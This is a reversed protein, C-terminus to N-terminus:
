GPRRSTRRARARWRAAPRSRAGAGDARRRGAALDRRRLAREARASRAGASGRGGSTSSPSRPSRRPRRAPRRCSRACTGSRSPSRRRADRLAHGTTTPSLPFPAREDALDHRHRLRRATTRRMSSRLKPAPACSTCPAASPGSRCRRGPWDRCCGGASRPSRRCRSRARHQLPAVDRDREAAVLSGNGGFRTMPVTTCSTPAPPAIARSASSRGITSRSASVTTFTSLYGPGIGHDAADAESEHDSTHTTSCVVSNVCRRM